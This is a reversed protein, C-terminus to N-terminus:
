RRGLGMAGAPVTNPVSVEFGYVTPVVSGASYRFM